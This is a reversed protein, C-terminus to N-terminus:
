NVSVKSDGPRSAQGAISMNQHLSVAYRAGGEVPLFPQRVHKPVFGCLIRGHPAHCSPDSANPGLCGKKSSTEIHINTGQEKVHPTGRFGHM